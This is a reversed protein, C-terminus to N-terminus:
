GKGLVVGAATSKKRVLPPVAGLDVRPSRTEFDM